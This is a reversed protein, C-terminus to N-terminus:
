HNLSLMLYMTTALHSVYVCLNLCIQLRNQKQVVIMVILQICLISYQLNVYLLTESMRIQRDANDLLKERYLFMYSQQSVAAHTKYFIHTHTNINTTLACSYLKLRVYKIFLYRLNLMTEFQYTTHVYNRIEQQLTIQKSLTSNLRYDMTTLLLSM